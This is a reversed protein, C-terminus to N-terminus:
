QNTGRAWRIANFLLPFTAETQARHQVRFGFLVVRGKGVELAVAAAKRELKEAGHIWGSLLIDRQDGPYWALVSRTVDPAPLSTQFAIPSDVFAAVESPMGATVPHKSDLFVRVLTGPANFDADKANALTNRVPLNFEDIVLETANALAILTGGNEVFIKLNKAGDKGFGGAYEPPLEEFYGEKRYRGDLMVSKTSDPLIIVDFNANLNGAKVAANEVNKVNYKRQELIFRTWGEDMSPLYSKYLGIRPSNAAAAPAPMELTNPKTFASADKLRTKEVSVGMMLPLSWTTVDYPELIGSGEAPRVEPYRQTSLMEDAFRGYPQATSILYTRKDKSQLIEVNHEKMLAVLRLAADPDHQGELAIRWYEDPKASAVAQKAMNATARLLDERYKTATELTAESIILEYDMIDRLRWAGGPWPNPFNVQQHYETLGKGDGRLENPAVEIPTAVRASAVETLVGFVNKWWGTNRTGGIWYADFAYSSVVGPKGAEELRWAMNSGLLNNGRHILPNVREAVPDANPPVYIRPGYSGMQHEDLWYQPFWDHYVARNVNKTERQTLMYWDRNNDHGVYHHYLYPMAGGEYKTGVYKRYWETVMTEGDPNLSPVLLLIVNNLRDKTVPDQATALKYAWEMAMQSSGIETAHINCTVLLILKGEKAMADIQQQSLGRPDALRRAIEKYKQQNKINEESSIVAMIMDKNLTTQGLSKVEVRGSAADLARFYESIQAYDALKRDAGVEFGLFESPSVIKQQAFASIALFLLCLFLVTRKM